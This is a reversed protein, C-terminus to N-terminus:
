TWIFALNWSILPLHKEDDGGCFHEYWALRKSPGKRFYSHQYGVLWSQDFCATSLRFKRQVLSAGLPCHNLNKCIRDIVLHCANKKQKTPSLDYLCEWIYLLSGVWAFAQLVISQELDDNVGDVYAQSTALNATLGTVKLFHNFLSSWLLRVRASWWFTMLLCLNRLQCLSAKASFM